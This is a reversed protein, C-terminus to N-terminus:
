NGNYMFVLLKSANYYYYSPDISIFIILIILRLMLVEDLLYNIVNFKVIVFYFKGYSGYGQTQPPHQQYNNGWQPPPGQPGPPAGWGQYSGPGSPTGYGAYSGQGPSTGWSQYSCM